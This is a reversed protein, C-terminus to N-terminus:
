VVVSFTHFTSPLQDMPVPAKETSRIMRLTEFARATVDQGAGGRVPIDDINTGIYRSRDFRRATQRFGTAGVTGTVHSKAITGALDGKTVTGVVDSLNKGIIIKNGGVGNTGNM